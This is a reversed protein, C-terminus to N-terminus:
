PIFFQDAYGTPPLLRINTNFNSVMRDFSPLSIENRARSIHKDYLEDAMKYTFVKHEYGAGILRKIVHFELATRFNENDPILPYGEKDTPLSLYTLKVFGECFSTQISNGVIKYFRRASRYDSMVLDEGFIPPSHPNPTNVPLGTATGHHWPSTEFVSPRGDNFQYRIDQPVGTHNSEPIRFGRDDELALINVFGCPLSVCYNRVLLEGPSDCEGTTATILNNTLYNYGIGEAIWELVDDIYSAPLKNGTGRIVNAVVQKASVFRFNM